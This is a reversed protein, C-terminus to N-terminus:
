LELIKGYKDIFLLRKIKKTLTKQYVLERKFRSVHMKSRRADIIINPSQKLASQLAHQITRKGNGTPSKLEWYANGIKFDATKHTTRSVFHVDMEFYKVLLKSATIEHSEPWPSLDAPIYIQKTNNPKQTQSKQNPDIHPYYTM